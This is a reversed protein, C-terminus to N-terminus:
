NWFKLADRTVTYVEEDTAPRPEASVWEDTAAWYVSAHDHSRGRPVERQVLTVTGDLFESCHIEDAHQAYTYKPTVFDVDTPSLFVPTPEGCLHGGPGCVLKQKKFLRSKEGDGSSEVVKYNMMRGSVVYSVFDWPHTHIKSVGPTVLSIHWIHLRINPDSSLYTRLMGLGQVSWQRNWPNELVNKVFMRIISDKIM